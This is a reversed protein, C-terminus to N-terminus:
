DDEYSLSKARHLKIDDDNNNKSSKTEKSENM